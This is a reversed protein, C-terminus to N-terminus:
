PHGGTPEVLHHECGPYADREACEPIETPLVGYAVVRHGADVLDTLPTELPRRPPLVVHVLPTERTAPVTECWHVTYTDLGATARSM